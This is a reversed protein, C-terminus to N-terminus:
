AMKFASPYIGGDGKLFGEPFDPIQAHGIRHQILLRQLVIGIQGAAPHHSGTQIGRQIHSKRHQFVSQQVGRASRHLLGQQVRADSLIHFAGVLVANKLGTKGNHGLMGIGPIFFPKEPHNLFSQFLDEPISHVPLGQGGTNVKKLETKPFGVIGREGPSQDVPQVHQIGPQVIFGPRKIIQLLNRDKLFQFGPNGLSIKLLQDPGIQQFIGMPSHDHQFRLPAQRFFSLLLRRFLQRSVLSRQATLLDPIQYLGCLFQLGILFGLVTLLSNLADGQQLPLINM